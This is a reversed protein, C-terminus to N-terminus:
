LGIEREVEFAIYKAIEEVKKEDEGEVMIRALPETGSYRFMVRGRGMMKKECLAIIDQVRPMEEIPKKERVRVNLLVQPFLEVIKALESLKKGKLKMISLVQLAALTGDGTTAHDLFILHGSKEGGFNYGGSRMEEVVYRDGVPTRIFEGELNRIFVELAMNSMVTTVLTNKQLKGKKIMDEACIAMIKDGDVEEGKEDCFIVRDADGDLAIGLDAGTELVKEKIVEPQLSGCGANINKGDPTIGIKAVDAGLEQFVWPAVNYAAGNACDLVIKLGDLTVDRPFTNKVFVVYRGKADDIRYAKGIDAPSTKIGNLKNGLM